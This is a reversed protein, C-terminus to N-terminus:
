SKYGHRLLQEGARRADEADPPDYDFTDALRDAISFLACIAIATEIGEDSVGAARMNLMEESSVDGPRLTLTELFALTARVKDNVPASRWDTLVATM